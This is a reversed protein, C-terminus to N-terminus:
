NDFYTAPLIIRIRASRSVPVTRYQVCCCSSWHKKPNLNSGSEPLTQPDLSAFKAVFPRSGLIRPSVSRHLSLGQPDPNLLTEPDLHSNLGSGPDVSSIFASRGISVRERHATHTKGGSLRRELTNAIRRDFNASMRRQSITSLSIGEDAFL